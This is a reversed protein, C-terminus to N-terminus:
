LRFGCSGLRARADKEALGIFDLEFRLFPSASQRPRGVPSLGALTPLGRKARRLTLVDALVCALELSCTIADAAPVARHLVGTPVDRFRLTDVWSLLHMGLVNESM